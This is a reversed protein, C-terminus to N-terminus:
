PLDQRNRLIRARTPVGEQLRKRRLAHPARASTHREILVTAVEACYRARALYVAVLGVAMGGQGVAGAVMKLLRPIGAGYHM